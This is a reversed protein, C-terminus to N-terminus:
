RYWSPTIWRGAASEVACTYGSRMFCVYTHVSDVGGKAPCVGAAGGPVM